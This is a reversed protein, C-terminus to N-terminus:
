SRSPYIGALAIIYNVVLYPQQISFPQNSGALGTSQSPYTGTAATHTYGPVAVGSDQIEAPVGGTPDTKNAVANSCNQAFTHAHAPLNNTLLTANETGGTQGQTYNAGTTSTGFGLVSRGSLNPLNFTSVGNGGYTTGLLSFLATNQSISLSQGQCLAWSSPAFNGAFIRIEGLFPDSM